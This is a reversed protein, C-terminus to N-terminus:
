RKALSDLLAALETEQLEGLKRTHIKGHADIILTFPLGMRQNGLEKSLNIVENGGVLLPYAVPHRSAFSQVNAASDVAIGIFQVGRNKWTQQLRSFAPMEKKCPPCWTAWFNVVLVKGRWQELPTQRGQADPLKLSMLQQLAASEASPPPLPAADGPKAALMMSATGITLALVITALTKYLTTARM